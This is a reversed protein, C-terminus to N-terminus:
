GLALHRRHVVQIKGSPLVASHVTRRWRECYYKPLREVCLIDCVAQLPESIGFRCDARLLRAVEPKDSTPLIEVSPVRNLLFPGTSLSLSVLKGTDIGLINLLRDIFLVDNLARRNHVVLDITKVDYNFDRKFSFTSDFDEWSAMAKSLESRKRLFGPPLESHSNEIERGGANSVRNRHWSLGHKLLIAPTGRRHGNPNFTFM